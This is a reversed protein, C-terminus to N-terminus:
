PRVNQEWFERYEERRELVLPKKQAVLQEPNKGEVDFGTRNHVVNCFFCATVIFDHNDREPHGKPLLHDWTLYLWNPWVKGDLGCYVCVFDGRKHVSHAYGRLSDTFTAM